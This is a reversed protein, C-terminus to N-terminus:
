LGIKSGDWILEPARIGHNIPGRWAAASNLYDRRKGDRGIRSYILNNKRFIKMAENVTTSSSETMKAVHRIRTDPLLNYRLMSARLYCFIQFQKATMVRILELELHSRMLTFRIKGADHSLSERLLEFHKKPFIEALVEVSGTEKSVFVLEGNKLDKKNVQDIAEHIIFEGHGLINEINNGEDM